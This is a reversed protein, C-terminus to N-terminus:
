SSASELWRVGFDVLERQRYLRAEAAGIRGQFFEHEAEYASGLAPFRDENGALVEYSVWERGSAIQVASGQTEHTRGGARHEALHLSTNNDHGVGLLLVWAAQEYLRALPGGEGFPHNLSHDATIAEALPGHAAFSGTPHNSRLVGPWTRLLEPIAGM